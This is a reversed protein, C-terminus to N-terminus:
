FTYNLFLKVDMLLSSILNHPISEFTSMLSFPPLSIQTSVSFHSLNLSNTTPPLYLVAFM